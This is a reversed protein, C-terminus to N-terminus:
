GKHEFNSGRGSLLPEPRPATRGPVFPDTEARHALVESFPDTLEVAAVSDANVYITTFFAQGILRRVHPEADRYTSGIGEAAAVAVKVIQAENELREEGLRVTAKAASIERTLRAQERKLVDIPIADALHAQVLKDREADLKRLSAAARTAERSITEQRKSLRKLLQERVATAVDPNLSIDAFLDEIRSEIDGERVYQQTCGNKQARGHCFFYEYIGGLKGRAHTYIMRSGCGACRLSGKLHHHHKIHNENSTAKSALIAQVRDFLEESILPEHSGAVQAGEFQVVGTYYPNSLIRALTTLQIPNGPGKKKGGRTRLGRDALEARLEKLTWEGTAYAEYAWRIHPARDPDVEVTRIEQGEVRKGVNLYGLPALGVTGGSQFKQRLGKKTENALNKSFFEANAAMIAHLLEGSPTEDISESVSVLRAGAERIRLNITVDDYRNRALRDIKHVIVFDVPEEELRQLMNQLQPRDASRASEGHDVFEDVVQVEMSQAKRLCAERQAPISYGEIQGDREAQETTSVRLYLVANKM